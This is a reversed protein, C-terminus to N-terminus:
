KLEYVMYFAKGWQEYQILDAKMGLKELYQELVQAITVRVVTTNYKNWRIVLIDKHEFCDKYHSFTIDVKKYTVNEIKYAAHPPCSAQIDKTM